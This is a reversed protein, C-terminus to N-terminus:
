TRPGRISPSRTTLWTLLFYLAVLLGNVGIWIPSFFGPIAVAAAIQSVAAFLWIVGGWPTALWLGVAAVPDLVAFFVVAAGWQVTAQDLPSERPVLVAIWQMLAQAVWACALLRMFSVLLIRCRRTADDAPEVAGARISRTASARATAPDSRRLARM